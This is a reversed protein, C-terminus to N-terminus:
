YRMEMEFYDLGDDGRHEGTVSFGFREYMRRARDNDQVVILAIGKRGQRKGEDVLMQMLRRGIGQGHFADAVGIGLGPVERDMPAIFAWGVIDDEDAAVVDFRTGRAADGCIRECDHLAARWGLPRFLRRSEHSMGNYFRQLARGEDARLTRLEVHEDTPM